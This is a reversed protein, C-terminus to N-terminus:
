LSEAAASLHEDRGAADPLSSGAEAEPQDVGLAAAPLAQGMVAEIVEPAVQELDDADEPPNVEAQVDVFQGCRQSIEELMGKSLVQIM